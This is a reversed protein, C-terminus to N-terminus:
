LFYHAKERLSTNPAMWLNIVLCFSCARTYIDYSSLLETNLITEKKEQCLWDSACCDEMTGEDHLM